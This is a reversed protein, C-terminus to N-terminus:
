ESGVKIQFHPILNLGHQQVHLYLGILQILQLFDAQNNPDTGAAFERINIAGDNDPDADNAANGSNSMTGFNAERWIDLPSSVSKEQYTFTVTTLQGGTVVVTQPSPAEFGEVERFRLSYTGPNM